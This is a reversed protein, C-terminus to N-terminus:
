QTFGPLFIFIIRYENNGSLDHHHSVTSPSLSYLKICKLFLKNLLSLLDNFAMRLTAPYELFLSTANKCSYLHLWKRDKKQNMLKIILELMGVNLKTFTLCKEYQM